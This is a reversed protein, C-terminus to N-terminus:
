ERGKLLPAALAIGERADHQSWKQCNKWDADRDPNPLDPRKAIREFIEVLKEIVPRYKAEASATAAQWAKLMADHMSMKDLALVHPGMEDILFNEFDLMEDTHQATM